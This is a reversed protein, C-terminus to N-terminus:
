PAMYKLLLQEDRRSLRARTRMHMIITGTTRPTISMPPVHCRSCNAKFVQEGANQADYRSNVKKQGGANSSGQVQFALTAIPGLSLLTLLLARLIRSKM